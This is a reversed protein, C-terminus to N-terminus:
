LLSSVADEIAQVSLGAQEYLEDAKGSLAYHSVGLAKMKVDLEGDVITKQVYSALGTHINHDHVTVVCGTKRLSDMVTGHDFPHFSSVAIVDIDGGLKEAAELARIVMPGSAVITARSGERLLDAKGPEYVYDKDYYPKGDEDLIVPIKARGM